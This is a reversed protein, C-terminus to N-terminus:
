GLPASPPVVDERVIPIYPAMRALVGTVIAAAVLVVSAVPDIRWYTIAAMVILVITRLINGLRPGGVQRCRAGSFVIFGGAVLCMGAARWLSGGNMGNGLEYFVLFGIWIFLGALFTAAPIFFKNTM